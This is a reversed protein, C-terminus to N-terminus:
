LARRAQRAEAAARLLTAKLEPLVPGPGREGVIERTFGESAAARIVFAPEAPDLFARRNDIAAYLEDTLQERVIDRERLATCGEVLGEGLRADDEPRAGLDALRVLLARLAFPTLGREMAVSSMVGHMSVPTAGYGGNLVLLSFGHEGTNQEALIWLQGQLLLVPGAHINFGDNQVYTLRGNGLGIRVIELHVRRQDIARHRFLAYWGPYSKGFHRTEEDSRAFSLFSAAGEALARAAPSSARVEAGLFSTLREIPGELTLLTFGPKHRAIEAAIRALNHSTPHVRGNLWRNIVSKDVGIASGFSAPSLNIAKLILTLRRAFDEM